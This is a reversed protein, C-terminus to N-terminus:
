ESYKITYEDIKGNAMEEELVANIKNLLETNGKKVIMGYKDTFLVGDLIELESNASVLKQAPLSDMIICDAKGNKVDEASSLYKKQRIITANKYNDTAYADATTGLQVSITKGDLNNLTVSSGKKVVVVQKSTAYEITFDVQEKREDTISMGAAAFDAKGSNVENIISDFSIDKVVLKKNMAKAIDQAIAIDVGVIENNDYYEYPAFGAETVMVLEDSSSQNGCACLFGSVVLLSLVAVIKKKM